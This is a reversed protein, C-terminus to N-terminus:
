KVMKINGLNDIKVKSPNKIEWSSFSRISIEENLNNITSALHHRFTYYMSSIKQVRYLFSSLFEPNNKNSEFEDNSLGLLFMDNIELTTVIDEGDAPLRYIEEGQRKREVVTWFQVVEEKLNGDHDIYILVHHNNRPDVFQNLDSKLQTANGLMQKSRVKKVPIKEGNKNPLFIQWKGDKFFANDPVKYGKSDKLDINCNDRLHIEILN